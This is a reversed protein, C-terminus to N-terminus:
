NHKKFTLILRKVLWNAVKILQNKTDLVYYFNDYEIIKDEYILGKLIANRQNEIDKLKISVPFNIFSPIIDYVL